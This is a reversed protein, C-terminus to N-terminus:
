VLRLIDAGYQIFSRAFPQQCLGPNRHRLLQVANSPSHWCSLRQVTDSPSHKWRRFRQVADSLSHKWRRFRQVVDSLSHKWCSFCQIVNILCFQQISHFAAADKLHKYLRDTTGSGCSRRSEAPLGARAPHDEVGACHFMRFGSTQDIRFPKPPKCVPFLHKGHDPPKQFQVTDYFPPIGFCLVAAKGIIQPCHNLVPPHIKDQGTKRGTGNGIEM